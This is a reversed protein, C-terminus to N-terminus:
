GEASPQEKEPFLIVSAADGVLHRFLEGAGKGLPYHLPFVMKPQIRRVLDAAQQTSMTFLGGNIPLIALTLDSLSDLEPVYHTDGAHYIRDNGCALLFGLYGARLPHTPIGKSYAPIGTVTWDNLQLVEGPHLVEVPLDPLRTAVSQPAILRTKGAQYVKRIDTPSFHDPHDHTVLVADASITESTLFPDISFLFSPTQIRVSAPLFDGKFFASLVPGESSIKLEDSLAIEFPATRNPSITYNTLHKFTRRFLELIAIIVFAWGLLM